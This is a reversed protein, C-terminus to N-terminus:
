RVFTDRDSAPSPTARGINDCLTRVNTAIMDGFDKDVRGVGTIQANLGGITRDLAAALVRKRGAASAFGLDALFHDLATADLADLSTANGLYYAFEDTPRRDLMTPM